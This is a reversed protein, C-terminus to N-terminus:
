LVEWDVHIERKALDVRLIVKDMLFPIAHEKEGKVVLVDNSGTAILYIVEGLVQGSQDIVKLGVLDSWYFENEELTPLQERSIAIHQGTVQRAVEPNDYGRLKVIIGKGHTRGAEIDTPKWHQQDASLYWPKYELISTGFETFPHVKLWGRVGYTAGIKGIIIYKAASKM